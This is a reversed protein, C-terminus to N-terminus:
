LDLGAARELSRASVVRRPKRQVEVVIRGELFSNKDVLVIRVKQVVHDGHEIARQRLRPGDVLRVPATRFFIWVPAPCSAQLAGAVDGEALFVIQHAPLPIQHRGPLPLQRGIQPIERLRLLSSRTTLSAAVFDYSSPARGDSRYRAGAQKELAVSSAM